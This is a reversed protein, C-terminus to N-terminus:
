FPDRFNETTYRHMAERVSVNNVRRWGLAENFYEFLSDSLRVGVDLCRYLRPGNGFDRKEEWIPKNFDPATEATSM